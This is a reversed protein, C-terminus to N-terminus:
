SRSKLYWHGVVDSSTEAQKDSENPSVRELLDTAPLLYTGLLRPEDRFSQFLSYQCLLERAPDPTGSGCGTETM